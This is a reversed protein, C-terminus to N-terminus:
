FTRPQRKIWLVASIFYAGSKRTIMLNLGGVRWGLAYYDENMQGDRLTTPTRPTLRKTLCIVRTMRQKM